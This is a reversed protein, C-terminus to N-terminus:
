PRASAWPHNTALAVGWEWALYGEIRDVDADDLLRGVPVFLEHVTIPAFNIPTARALAGLAFTNLTTTARTVATNNGLTGNKRAAMNTGIDRRVLLQPTSQFSTGGSPANGIFNGAADSTANSVATTATTANMRLPAYFQTTSATSGESIVYRGTAPAASTVVMFVCAAGAAYMWAEAISLFDDTGDFTVGPLSTGGATQSWVPQAAGTGQTLVRGDGAMSAWASVANSSLAMTGTQKASLWLTGGAFNQPTWPQRPYRRAKTM